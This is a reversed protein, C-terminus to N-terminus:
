VAFDGSYGATAEPPHFFDELLDRSYDFRRHTVGAAASGVGCVFLDAGPRCPMGFRNLDNEIWGFDAVLGNEIVEKAHVIGGCRIALVVVDAGLVAGGNEIMGFFLFSGGFTDFLAEILGSTELAGDDGLNNRRDIEIGRFGIM